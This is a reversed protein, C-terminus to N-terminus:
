SAGSTYEVFMEELSAEETRFNEIDVGAENLTILVDMKADNSCTVEVRNAEPNPWAREVGALSEVRELVDSEARDVTILLKTTGGVSDRLGEITDTAVLEGDYLIGVRDCVAEVQELIHSSFFVTAGREREERIVTRIQKIGHPDLGSTPEDLVLLDPEGVLAMGLVLRQAMGKSYGGAPQDAADRIGVRDLVAMPEVDAEKAEIAYELHQRGTLRDYVTYGDPLVGMRSKAEVSEAQCDHGFIAARGDDPQAFDLFVNILTSKGAGNPGLFGFVEGEDVTLDVRDLATVTGYRKSVNEVTIATM